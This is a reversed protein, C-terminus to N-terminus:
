YGAVFEAETLKQGPFPPSFAAQAAYEVGHPMGDSGFILDEGPVFGVTDILMRFPNNAEAYGPPLRDLYNESDTSFNPQMSFVMGLAKAERAVTEDIFQCHEMRFLPFWYGANKLRRATRVVQATALDGIAHVSVAKGLGSVERLMAYLAEDTHMLYGKEGNRLPRALAATGAGLAGDTFLKIGKVDAQAEASLSQYTKMVAWFATRAMYQTPRIVRLFKESTLLMDEVYYVGLTELHTFFSEIRELTPEVRNALFIMMQPMHDEYWEPDHYNAVIDPYDPRLIEEAASSMLFSHLSINVIIVPPLADLDEKTFTYNGSHWGLVMSVKRKDLGRLLSMAATKTETTRLDPCGHLLGYFSLHSHHDKLLPINM